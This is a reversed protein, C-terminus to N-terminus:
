GLIAISSHLIPFLSILIEKANRINEFEGMAVAARTINSSTDKLVLEPIVDLFEDWHQPPISIGENNLITRNWYLVMPDLILPFGLIGNERLLFEGAEIFNEKYQLQPYFEYDILFLKNEHKSLLNDPLIVADPGTGSALAEILAEEFEEETFETYTINVADREADNIENQLLFITDNSITGWMTIPEAKERDAQKNIAFIMVALIIVFVLIGFLVMQFTSLKEGM